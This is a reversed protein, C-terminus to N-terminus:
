RVWPCRAALRSGRPRSGFPSGARSGSFRLRVGSSIALTGAEIRLTLAGALRQEVNQRPHALVVASRDRILDLVEGRVLLAHPQPLPDLGVPMALLEGGLLLAREEVAQEVHELELAEDLPGVEPLLHERDLSEVRGHRHDVLDCVERRPVAGGLDHEPHRMATAETNQGVVEAARHLRDEGLELARLRDLLHLRHGRDGLAARSVDLVVVTGLSSKAVRSSPLDPHAQVRVRAVELEDVGDHGPPARRATM